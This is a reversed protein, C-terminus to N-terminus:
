SEEHDRLSARRVKGTATKPLEDVTEIERPYEYKALRDRVHQRISERLDDSPEADATLVVFAKPVEGREDDPVGIVAADAVAEHGAVSDEVEEPGIRYGASIIVDDKRGVFAVYGDEDMRGLDETLLWGNRVKGSTKEPKNWYEVFCVPNDEYRVAIEGTEGTEVTPEATEPDVITVEHGPGARGIYGERFETLATCDGVLMNAETQGYGEHVATDGFTDQAWDVISQGLSEGGSAITRLTGVDFRDTDDVQMMMRLATPPAFFNSVGYREILRFASAPDFQGGNYAVVPKGYYLAPMVVDFLSAIWAWEAPTWFVDGDQLDMNGFTTVFLPLHGLVLRHAHRVGKPDGTTGSTYILIADDEADTEVTDFERSHDAIANWFAAEGAAEDPTVDGVTLTTELDSLSARAERFNEINSEDVVAAVADCDELRYEVADPGFLTSLPVSMAGLKWAALHAFVTEPRQPANVGVRDGAEVGQSRLYNALRNTVNRMQWFTYTEETGAADEAFLAVRSKDDAWRDCLYTAMNFRDPVEWEFAERLQEYSDWDDEYFHYADLRQGRTM